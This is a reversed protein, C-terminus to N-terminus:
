EKRQPGDGSFGEKLNVLECKKCMDGGGMLGVYLLM